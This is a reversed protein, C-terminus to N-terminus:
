WMCSEANLYAGLTPHSPDMTLVVTDGCAHHHVLLNPVSPDMGLAVTDDGPHNYHLHVAVGGM